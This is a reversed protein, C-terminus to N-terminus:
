RVSKSLRSNVRADAMPRYHFTPWRETTISPLELAAQLWRDRVVVDNNPGDIYTALRLEKIRLHVTRLTMGLDLGVMISQSSAHPHHAVWWMIWMSQSPDKGNM